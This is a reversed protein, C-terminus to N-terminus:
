SGGADPELLGMPSLQEALLDAIARHGDPSWHGDFKYFLETPDPHRRLFHTVDIWPVQGAESAARVVEGSRPLEYNGSLVYNKGTTYLLLTRAGLRRAEEAIEALLGTTKEGDEVAFDEGWLGVVENILGLRVGLYGISDSLLNLVHSRRKLLLIRDGLSIAADATEEQTREVDASSQRHGLWGDEVIAWDVAPWRSETIDNASLFQVIVLDPDLEAGKARLFALQDATGYGPVGGNLVRLNLDPHAEAIITELQASFTEHDLVGFGFAQSDGLVLITLHDDLIEPPEAGRLGISNVSFPASFESRELRGEFNPSLVYGVAPDEVYMGQPHIEFVQPKAIRLVLEAGGIAIAMSVFVLLLNVLSSTYIRM